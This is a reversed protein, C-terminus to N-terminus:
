PKGVFHLVVKQHTYEGTTTQPFSIALSGSPQNRAALEAGDVTSIQSPNWVGLTYTRGPRGAVDLTLADHASTWRESVVRLGQSAEGLPPLSSTLTLGFDNRLRLQVRTEGKHVTFRLSPHQDLANIEPRASVASGNVNAAVIQSRLNIAPSFLIDCDGTSVVTLALSNLNHTYTLELVTDAV